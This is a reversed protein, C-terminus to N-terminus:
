ESTVSSSFDYLLNKLYTTEKKSAELVDIKQKGAFKHAIRQPIRDIHQVLKKSLALLQKDIVEVPIAKGAEIQIKMMDREVEFTRKFSKDAEKKWFGYMSINDRNAAMMQNCYGAEEKAKELQQALDLAEVVETSVETAPTGKEETAVIGMERPVKAKEIHKAFAKDIMGEIKEVTVKKNTAILKDIKVFVNNKIKLESEMVSRKAATQRSTQTTVYWDAGDRATTKPMGKRHLAQAWAYKIGLCAALQNMSIGYVRDSAPM